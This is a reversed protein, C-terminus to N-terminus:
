TASSTLWKPPGSSTMTCNQTFSDSTIIIIIIKLWSPNQTNFNMSLENQLLSKSHTVDNKVSRWLTFSKCDTNFHPLSVPQNM